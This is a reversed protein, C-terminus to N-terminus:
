RAQQLASVQWGNPGSGPLRRFTWIETAESPNAPDGGVVRGSQRERTVDILSFRLAVSAYDADPESWAEALDGKVLRVDSLQNVIGQRANGAIEEAFYSAMEPTVMPRLRELNEAGFAMQVAGLLYEFANFDASVLTLPAAGGGAPAGFGGLGTRAAGAGAYSPQRNGFANIAWRILLYILGLQLLLGFFSFGGGIGGFFGHGFLLGFLGAGLFGGLLGRGFGFGSGFAPQPRYGYPSTSSSSPSNMSRGIGAAGGPATSTIPPASFTRGGRSGFSFGGGARAEALAPALALMAALLLATVRRFSSRQFISMTSFGRYGGSVPPV